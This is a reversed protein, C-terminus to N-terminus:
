FYVILEFMHIDYNDFNPSGITKYTCNGTGMWLGSEAYIADWSFETSSYENNNYISKSESGHNYEEGNPDYLINEVEISEIGYGDYEASLHFSRFLMGNSTINFHIPKFEIEYQFESKENIVQDYEIAEFDVHNLIPMEYEFDNGKLDSEIIVGWSGFDSLILLDYNGPVLTVFKETSSDPDEIFLGTQKWFVFSEWLEVGDGPADKSFIIFAYGSDSNCEDMIISIKANTKELVKILIASDGVESKIFTINGRLVFESFENDSPNSINVDLDDEPFNLTPDFIDAENTNHSNSNNKFYYNGFAFIGTLVFGICIILTIIKKM